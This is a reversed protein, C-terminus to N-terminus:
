GGIHYCQATVPHLSSGTGECSVSLREREAVYLCDTGDSIHFLLKGPALAAVVEM